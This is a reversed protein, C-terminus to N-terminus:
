IMCALQPPSVPCTVPRVSVHLHAARRQWRKTQVCSRGAYRADSGACAMIMVDNMSEAHVPCAALMCGSSEQLQRVCFAARWATLRLCVAGVQLQLECPISVQREASPEAQRQPAAAWHGSGLAGDKLWLLM